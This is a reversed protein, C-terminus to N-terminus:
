SGMSLRWVPVVGETKKKDRHVGELFVHHHDGSRRILDDAVVAIDLWTPSNLVKSGVKTGWDQHHLVCPGEIAVDDLRDFLEGNVEEFHSYTVLQDKCAVGATALASAVRQYMADRAQAMRQQQEECKQTYALWEPSQFYQKCTRGGVPEGFPVADEIDDPLMSADYICETSGVQLPFTGSPPITAMTLKNAEEKSDALVAGTTTIEVHYIHKM